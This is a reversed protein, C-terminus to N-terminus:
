VAGDKNRMAAEIKFIDDITDVDTSEDASMIFPLSGNSPFGKSHLFTLLPFIYIAGNVKYVQPLDQRRANTLKESFLASLLGNGDLVFCKYPSYSLEEVSLLFCAQKEQLLRFAQNIHSASRLPSTPQLYVIFPNKEVIDKGLCSIFHDVVDAASSTDTAFESPRTLCEIPYERGLEIIAPDDSSLFTRDIFACNISAEITYHLLPKGCVLTTNKKPIGKSGGRAPILGLVLSENYSM